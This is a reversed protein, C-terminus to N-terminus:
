LLRLDEGWRDHGWLGDSGSERRRWLLTCAIDSNAAASGRDWPAAPAASARLAARAEATQASRRRMIPVLSPQGIRQRQPILDFRQGAHQSRKGVRDTCVDQKGIHQVRILRVPRRLAPCDTGQGLGRYAGPM